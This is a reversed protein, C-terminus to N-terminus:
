SARGCPPPWSGRRSRRTGAPQRRPPPRPAAGDPGVSTSRIPGPSPLQAGALMVRSLQTARGRDRVRGGRGRAAGGIGGGHSPRRWWAISNKLRLAPKEVVFYSLSATIITLGLVAFFFAWFELTFDRFHGADLIRYIWTEHWLYIGYSIAGLSAMPWWQLFRRIGGSGQPGFVAPLLLFFAFLSYLTQRAIDLYSEFYVPIVPSGINSVAWFCVLACAWAAWPFWRTGLWAPERDRHHMWASVVALGM